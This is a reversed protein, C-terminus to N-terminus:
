DTVRATTGGARRASTQARGIRVDINRKTSHGAFFFTLRIFDVSAGSVPNERMETQLSHCIREIRSAMHDMMARTPVPADTITPLASSSSSTSQQQQEKPAATLKSAPADAAASSSKTAASFLSRTTQLAASALEVVSASLPDSGPAVAAAAATPPPADLATPEGRLQKVALEVLFGVNEVPPFSKLRHLCGANDAALLQERVYRLMAVCLQDVLQIPRDSAFLADWIRLTDELHFERGFMCRLWRLMYLQPLVHLSELHACLEADKLRLLRSQIAECKDVVVNRSDAAALRACLRHPAAALRVV